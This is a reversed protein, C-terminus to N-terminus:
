KALKLLDLSQRITRRVSPNLVAERLQRIVAEKSSSKRNLDLFALISKRLIDQYNWINQRVFNDQADDLLSGHVIANRASYFQTVIARLRNEDEEDQGLVVTVRAALNEAKGRDSQLLYLSELGNTYALLWDFLLFHNDRQGSTDLLLHTAFLCRMDVTQLFTPPIRYPICDFRLFDLYPALAARFTQFPQIDVENLEYLHEGMKLGYGMGYNDEGHLAMDRWKKQHCYFSLPMLLHGTKFLKMATFLPGFLALTNDRLVSPSKGRGIYYWRCVLHKDHPYNNFHKLDTTLQKRDEGDLEQIWFEDGFALYPSDSKFHRLVACVQVDDEIM